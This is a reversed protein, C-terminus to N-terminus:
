EGLTELQKLTTGDELKWMENGSLSSGGVFGAAASPSSFLLDELLLWDDSIHDAYKERNRKANAPCSKQLKSAIRSNKFVVFGDATRRGSAKANITNLYLIEGPEKENKIERSIPEFIKHGM